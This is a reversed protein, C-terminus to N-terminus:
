FYKFIERIQYIFFSLEPYCMVYELEKFIHYM